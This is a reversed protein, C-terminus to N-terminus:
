RPVFNMGVQSMGKFFYLQPMVYTLTERTEDNKGQQSKWGHMEDQLNQLQGRLYNM